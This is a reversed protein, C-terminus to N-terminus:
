CSRLMAVVIGTLKVFEDLIRGKQKKVSRQYRCTTEKNITRKTHMALEM